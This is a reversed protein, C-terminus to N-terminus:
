AGCLVWTGIMIGSSMATNIYMYMLRKAHYLQLKYQLLYDEHHNIMSPKIIYDETQKMYFVMKLGTM